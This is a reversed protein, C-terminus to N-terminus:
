SPESPELLDTRQVALAEVRNILKGDLVTSQYDHTFVACDLRERVDAANDMLSDTNKDVSNLVVALLDLGRNKIAESSLLVQNICGLTDAAVLIVPLNLATALDANLGDECLPSYFGGAGEVVVFENHEAQCADALQWIFLKKDTLRAARAPSIAAEFRYPCVRTLPAAYHAAQKLADADHPRLQGDINECGSEIPKRPAVTINRQHLASALLAGIHTKGVGTDTGTIFIGHM